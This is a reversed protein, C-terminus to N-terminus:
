RQVSLNHYCQMAIILQQLSLSFISIERDRQRDTQRDTQRETEREREKTEMEKKTNYIHLKYIYNHVCTYFGMHHAKNRDQSDCPQKM